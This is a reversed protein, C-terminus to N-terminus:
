GTATLVKGLRLLTPTASGLLLELQKHQLFYRHLPYDRDVGVGGHVHHAAHMVRWGGESAWFKATLLAEDAPLGEALRWAAQWATLRVAETDIYAESARQSVAQFTAIAKGFQERAVAYAATLQLASDCAGATILAAASLGRRILDASADRGGVRLAPARDFTVLADPVGSTTDQRDVAVGPADADLVYLGDSTTVVFRAALLGHTVCVKTGTIRGGDVETAPSWVDGVPEHVAAAVIAAGTTVGELLEPHGILAPAALAMVAMAPVPAAVRGVETLVVATELWGYGGGGVEEPLGIGVLGAEGLSRWLALDTGSESLSVETLHESTCADSLIRRALDQLQVQDPSLAFDM